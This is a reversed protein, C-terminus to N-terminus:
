STSGPAIMSPASLMLRWPEDTTIGFLIGPLQPDIVLRTTNINMPSNELSWWTAGGDESVSIGLSDKSGPEAGTSALAIYVRRSNQPDVAIATVTLQTPTQLGFEVPDWTAGSDLSRYLGTNVTALYILTKDAGTAIALPADPLRSVLTWATGDRAYLNSTTVAYIQPVDGTTVSIDRLEPVLVGIAQAMGSKFTEKAAMAAQRVEYDPENVELQELRPLVQWADIAGLATIAQQRVSAVPDRTAATLVAIAQYERRMGLLQAAGARVGADRDNLATILVPVIAPSAEKLEALLIGRQLLSEGTKLSQMLEQFVVPSDSAVQNRTIQAYNPSDVNASAGAKGLPAQLPLILSAAPSPAHATWWVIAFTASIVLGILALILDILKIQPPPLVPRLRQWPSNKHIDTHFM